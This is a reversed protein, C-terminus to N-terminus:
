PRRMAVLLLSLLPLPLMQLQEKLLRGLLHDLM